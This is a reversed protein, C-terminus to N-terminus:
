NAVAVNFSTATVTDVPTAYTCTAVQGPVPCV